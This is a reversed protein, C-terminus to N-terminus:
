TRTPTTSTAPTAPILVEPEDGHNSSVRNNNSDGSYSAVWHFTGTVTPLFGGPNTGTSTDYTGNGNVTVTDTYVAVNAPSLLTFSIPRAPHLGVSPTASDTLNAGSGITVPA